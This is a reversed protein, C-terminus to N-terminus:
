GSATAMQVLSQRGPDLEPFGEVRQPPTLTPPETALLDAYRLSADGTSQIFVRTIVRTKVAPKASAPTVDQATAVPPAAALALALLAVFAGGRFPALSV